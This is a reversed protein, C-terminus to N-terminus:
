APHPADGAGRYLLHASALTLLVSVTYPIFSIWIM